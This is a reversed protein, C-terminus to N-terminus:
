FSVFKDIVYEVCYEYDIKEVGSTAKIDVTKYLNNNIYINTQGIVQNKLIPAQTIPYMEYVLHVKEDDKLIVNFDCNTVGKVYDTQGYKLGEIHGVVQNDLKINQYHFNEFGYDMLAITDRWKYTKNPPWGSALVVAILEVGKQNASGVFCYGADGTYGTKVGNAGDYINLFTNKNNVTLSRKKSVTSFTYSPTNIIQNFKENNLAYRTILALDYATTAHGEADLGNPTVYTTNIAGIEKAKETMKKCFAEVSGSVGEAVAIAVDNSSELMLAYLLDGLRYTEGEKIYLKVKPAIEARHSVVVEKDLSANEVAVICTMIKTTSAMAMKQEANKEWLVRGTVKDMLIASKAILDMNELAIVEQFNIVQLMFIVAIMLTLFKKM